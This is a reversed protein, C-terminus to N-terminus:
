PFVAMLSDAFIAMGRADPHNLTNTMLTSYPIGQRWLRGYRLSADALAVRHKGAFARLAKVYPRPDDDIERERTLGMWEGFVYHPTLILWEAGIGRFDQLLRGYREGLQAADLGADNVFESIILDPKKALVQERYNHEHGPPANLYALTTQGGWGETVLEIASGEFRQRLRRVFQEQWRDGPDDLYGGHTVSDGWALIKLREGNRLKGLAAPLFQEAISPTAKPPEPHVAELIPFLCEPRLKTLTRGPLHINAVRVDGEESAPPAPTAIHPEGRRVVLRGGPTLVVSDLRLKVYRYSVLVPQEAGIRGAPLRGLTGWDFDIEYDRGREFLTVDGGPTPRLQVSGPDLAGKATCEVARVGILREGRQWGNASPNFPPLFDYREDAVSIIEPPAIALSARREPTGPGRASLVIEVQWDNAIRMKPIM